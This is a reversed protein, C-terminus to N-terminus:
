LKTSIICRDNNAYDKFVNNIFYKEKKLLQVIKLKQDFGIELILRGGKKLLMSSKKLIKKYVDCGDVGGELALLPEYKLIDDDLYKVKNSSIYPPNSIILDYKGKFFNDVSSKYFKIRHNLQHMKANYKAIKLAKESVDIATGKFNKNENLLSIILCGSGTGIDLISINSKKKYLKLIKEILIESDPRPILVNKDVYFKNKWFEKENIIYAIPEKKSRRNLLLQYERLEKHNLNKNNNLFIFERSKNIAKSMILETDLKYNKINNKKLYNEGNLIMLNINSM